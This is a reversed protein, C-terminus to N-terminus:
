KEAEGRLLAGGGCDLCDGSGNFTYVGYCDPCTEHQVRIHSRYEKAEELLRKNEDMVAVCEQNTLVLEDMTQEALSKWKKNSM